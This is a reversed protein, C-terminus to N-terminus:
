ETELPADVLNLDLFTLAFQNIALRKWNLLWEGIGKCHIQSFPDPMFDYEQGYLTLNISVVFYVFTDDTEISFQTAFM